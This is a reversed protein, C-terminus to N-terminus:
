YNHPNVCLGTVYNYLYYNYLSRAEYGPGLNGATWLSLLIMIVNYGM